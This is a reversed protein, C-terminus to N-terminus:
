SNHQKQFSVKTLLTHPIHLQILSFSNFNDDCPGGKQEEQVNGLSLLPLRHALTLSFPTLWSSSLSDWISSYPLHQASVICGLGRAVHTFGVLGGHSSWAFMNMGKLQSWAAPKWRELLGFGPAGSCLRIRFREDGFELVSPCSPRFLRGTIDLMVEILWTGLGRCQTQSLPFHSSLNPIM